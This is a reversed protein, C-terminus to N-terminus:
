RQDSGVQQPPELPRLNELNRPPSEVHSQHPEVSRQPRQLKYYFSSRYMYSTRTTMLPTGSSLSSTRTTM